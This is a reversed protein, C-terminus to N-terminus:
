KKIYTWANIGSALIVNIRKYDSVEYKDARLLEEESIDYVFGKIEDNDNGTYYVINHSDEGSLKIVEPDIIKIAEKKYGTLMDELGVLDRGFVQNQVTKYRLTGYSFLKTTSM